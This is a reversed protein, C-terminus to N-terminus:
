AFYGVALINKAWERIEANADIIFEQGKKASAFYENKFSTKTHYTIDVNRFFEPLNWHSRTEGSKTLVLHKDYKLAGFGRMKENITLKDTAEYICNNTKGYKNAHPHYKIEEPLHQSSYVKGIQLYGYIVHIDPAEQKYQLIDNVLIAEKFWGFFLFIDGITVNKNHLHGQASRSQGFLGKWKESRKIVSPYIDPDLHCTYNSKIKTNKNLERIIDYYSKNEYILETYKISDEKSPIPLSLLTGDPLIPSPQSGYSSDFGKRSLIIKMKKGHITM